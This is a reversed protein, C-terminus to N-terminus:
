HLCITFKIDFKFKNIKDKDYLSICALVSDTLSICSNNIPSCVQKFKDEVVVRINHKKIWTGVYSSHIAGTDILALTPVADLVGKLRQGQLGETQLVPDQNQRPIIIECYNLYPSHENSITLANVCEDNNSMHQPIRLQLKCVDCNECTHSIMNLNANPRNGKNPMKTPKAGTDADVLEALHKNNPARPHYGM